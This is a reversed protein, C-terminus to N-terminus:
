DVCIPFAQGDEMVMCFCGFMPKIASCTAKSVECSTEGGWPATCMGECDSPSACPCGADVTPCICSPTPALGGITWNGGHLKCSAEDKANQCNPDAEPNGCEPRCPLIKLNFSFERVPPVDTEWPRFYSLKVQHEGVLPFPGKTEWTFIQVGGSGPMVVGSSEYSEQPYGLSKDTMVVHWGFGTSPNSDLRAVVRQGEVVSFTRGSDAEHLILAGPAANSPKASASPLAGVGALLFVRAMWFNLRNTKM